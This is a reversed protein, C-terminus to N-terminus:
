KGSDSSLPKTTYKQHQPTNEHVINIDKQQFFGIIKMNKSRVISIDNFSM